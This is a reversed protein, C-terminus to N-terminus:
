VLWLKVPALSVFMWRWGELGSRGDLTTYIAAQLAGAFKANDTCHGKSAMGNLRSIIM